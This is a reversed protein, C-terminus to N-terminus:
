QRLDGKKMSERKRRIRDCASPLTYEHGFVNATEENKRYQEPVIEQKGFDRRFGEASDYGMRAGMERISLKTEGPLRKAEEM